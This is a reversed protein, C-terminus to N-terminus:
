GFIEEMEQDDLGEKSERLDHYVVGPGVSLVIPGLVLSLFYAISAVMVGSSQFIFVLGNIVVNVIFLVIFIAFVQWRFGLTLFCSRQFSEIVGIEEMLFCPVAVYWLTGLFFGPVCLCSYGLGVLFAQCFSLLFIWGARPLVNGICDAISPKENRLIRFVGHVTAATTLFVHFQVLMSLIGVSFLFDGIDDFDQLTPEMLPTAEHLPVGLSYILFAFIGVPILFILSLSIWTAFGRGFVNFITGFTQGFDFRRKM